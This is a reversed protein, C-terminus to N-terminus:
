KDMSSSACRGSVKAGEPAGAGGTGRCSKCGIWAYTKTGVVQTCTCMPRNDRSKSTVLRLGHIPYSRM